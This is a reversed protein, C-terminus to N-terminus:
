PLISGFCVCSLSRKHKPGGLGVTPPSPTVRTATVPSNVATTPTVSVATLPTGATSPAPASVSLLALQAVAAHAEPTPSFGATASTPETGLLRGFMMLQGVFNLNPSACERRAQVLNMADQVSMRRYWMLYAVAVSVSRSIGAICHVLIRGQSKRAQEIFEIATKLHSLLDESLSDQLVIKLCQRTQAVQSNFDNTTLNLVHTVGQSDLLAINHADDESGVAVHSCVFNLQSTSHPRKRSTLPSPAPSLYDPESTTILHSCQQQCQAFGGEVFCVDRGERAFYECLVRLPSDAPVSSLSESSDDYIVMLSVSDRESLASKQVLYEELAGASNCKKLFRKWMISPFALSHSGLLHGHAYSQTARVDVIMVDSFGVMCQLSTPPVATVTHTAQEAM